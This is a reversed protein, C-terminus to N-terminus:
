RSMMAACIAFMRCPSPGSALSGQSYDTGRALRDDVGQVGARFNEHGVKLVGVGGGPLVRDLALDARTVRDAAGDAVDARLCVSRGPRAAGPRMWGARVIPSPMTWCSAKV